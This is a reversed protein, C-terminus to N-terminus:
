EVNLIWADKPCFAESRLKALSARASDLDNTPCVGVVTTGTKLTLLVTPYGAAESKGGQRNANDRTGFSGTVVYFRYEPPTSFKDASRTNVPADKTSVVPTKPPAQQTRPPEQQQTQAPQKQEPQEPVTQQAPDADPVSLSDSPVAEPQGQNLAVSDPSLRGEADLGILKRKIEIERSTPRGALVRFFDCGGLLCVTAAFAAIIIAKRM